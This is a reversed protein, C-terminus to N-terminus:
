VLDNACPCNCRWGADVFLVDRQSQPKEEHPWFKGFGRQKVVRSTCSHHDMDVFVGVLVPHSVAMRFNIPRSEVIHNRTRNSQFNWLCRTPCSTHYRFESDMYHCVLVQCSIISVQRRLSECPIHLHDLTFHVTCHLLHDDM